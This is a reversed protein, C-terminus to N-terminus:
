SFLRTIDNFLVFVMLIMLLVFGIMHIIGEKDPPIRKGTVAEILLFLLRGGDLAPIPLLNLIGLNTSLLVMLSLVRMLNDKFTSTETDIASDVIGVIGVPGAMDRVSAKGTFLMKLSAFVSKVGYRMEDYGGKLIQWFNGDERYYYASFGLAYGEVQAPTVTARVEQGNREVVFEVAAGPEVTEFFSHIDRGDRIATGNLTLTLDGTQLGAAEAPSGAGVATVVPPEENDYYSIGYRWTKYYPDIVAEAETGNREYELTVPSGDLENAILYLYIQQGTHISTGDISTIRDGEQIGAKAASSGETVNYAVAPNIGVSAVLVCGLVFALIFNFLPGGFVVLIRAWVPKKQFSNDEDSETDEGVMACSGGFPIAKLSYMTEGRTFHFIRPGMGISFETVGIGTKKAFIFHGFEHIFVLVGLVLVAIVISWFSM